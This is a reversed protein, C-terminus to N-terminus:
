NLTSCVAPTPPSMAFTMPSAAWSTRFSTRGDSSFFRSSFALRAITFAPSVFSTFSPRPLSSSPLHPKMFGALGNRRHCFFDPTMATALRRTSEAKTSALVVVIGARLAVDRKETGSAYPVFGETVLIARGGIGTRGALSLTRNVRGMWRRGSHEIDQRLNEEARLQAQNSKRPLHNRTTTRCHM